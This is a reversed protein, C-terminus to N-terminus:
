KILKSLIGFLTYPSFSLSPFLYFLFFSLFFSLLPFLNSPLYLILSPLSTFFYYIPSFFLLSSLLSLSFLLSNFFSLYIPSLTHKHSLSLTYKQSLSLTNTHTHTHTHTHTQTQTHTHTLSLSLTNTYSLTHTQSLSLLIRLRFIDGVYLSWWLEAVGGILRNICKASGIEILFMKFCFHNQFLLLVYKKM